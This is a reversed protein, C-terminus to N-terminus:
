QEPDIGESREASEWSRTKAANSLEDMAGKRDGSDWTRIIKELVQYARAEQSHHKAYDRYYSDVGWMVIASVALAWWKPAIDRRDEKM